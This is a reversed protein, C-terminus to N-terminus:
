AIGDSSYMVFIITAYDILAGHFAEGFPFCLRLATQHIRALCPVEKFNIKAAPCAFM